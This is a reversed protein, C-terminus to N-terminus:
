LLFGAAVFTHEGITPDETSGPKDQFVYSDELSKTNSLTNPYTVSAPTESTRLTCPNCNETCVNTVLDWGIPCQYQETVKQPTASANLNKKPADFCCKETERSFFAYSNPSYTEGYLLNDLYVKGSQWSKIDKRKVIVSNSTGNVTYEINYQDGTIFLVYGNHIVDNYKFSVKDGVNITKSKTKKVPLPILDTVPIPIKNSFGKASYTAGTPDVTTNDTFLYSGDTLPIKCTELQNGNMLAGLEASTYNSDSCSGDSNPTKCTNQTLQKVCKVTPAYTYNDCCVIAKNNYNSRELNSVQDYDRIKENIIAYKSKAVTGTITDEANKVTKKVTKEAKKIGKKISKGLKFSEITNKSFVIFGLVIIFLIFIKIIDKNYRM